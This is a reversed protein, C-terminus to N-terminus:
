AGQDEELSSRYAAMEELVEDFMPEDALMGAHPLWPHGDQAGDIEVSVVEVQALREVLKARLRELVEERTRGTATCDPLGLVSAKYRTDRTPEVLFNYTM